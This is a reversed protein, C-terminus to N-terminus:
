VLSPDDNGTRPCPKLALASDWALTHAHTEREMRKVGRRRGLVCHRQRESGGRGTGEGEWEGKGEMRQITRRMEAVEM